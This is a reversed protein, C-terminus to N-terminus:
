KNLLFEMRLGEKVKQFFDNKRALKRKMRSKKMKALEEQELQLKVPTNKLIQSKIKEIPTKNEYCRKVLLDSKKQLLNNNLPSIYRVQLFVM